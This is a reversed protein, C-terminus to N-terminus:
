FASFKGTRENWKVFVYWILIILCVLLFAGAYGIYDPLYSKFKMSHPLSDVLPAAIFKRSVPSLLLFGIAAMWLKVQGEGVRWLTGVACGGAVTMGLGFILGGILARLWFHPYIWTMEIARIPSDGVSIGFYKIATFGVLTVLLGAMVGVSGDAEGTMFPDRFAKVICFRSRQCILGMLLGSIIFWALVGNVGAVLWAIIFIVASVIWGLWVQWNGTENTVALFTYSKGSSFGPRNEMEWLLYKLAVIVGLFLGITFIIAGGSLAPVGSFFSGITCGQGIAAGLAMVAGGIFGKILEGKPPIRIAFEKSLLAGAFAGVVLILCLLGYYHASVPTIGEYGFIGLKDYLNEGWNNIGGSAGWPSKVAFLLINLIGLIIGGVWVPWHKSFFTKFLLNLARPEEDQSSM